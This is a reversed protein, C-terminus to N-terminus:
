FEDCDLEILNLNKLSTTEPIDKKASVIELTTTSSTKAINLLEREIDDNKLSSNEYKLARTPIFGYTLKIKGGSM